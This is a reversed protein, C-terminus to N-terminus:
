SSGVKRRPTRGWRDPFRRELRWAAARWQTKAAADIVALDRMEAHAMASQVKELFDVYLGCDGKAAREMWSYFTSRSIGAFAVATEIYLGRRLMRCICAAVDPTLKTPRGGRCITVKTKSSADEKNEGFSYGQEAMLDNM